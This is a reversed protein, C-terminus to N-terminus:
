LTSIKVRPDALALLLDSVLIGIVTLIGLLLISSAAMYTDQNLLAELLVPGLTPLNLVVSVIISGSFLAPLLYGVGSILPNLAVRVPYKIVLKWEPVGKARATVVYPKRLEDLLNNRLIRILGATGSTGLVLAPIWLHQFLNWVRGLSWDAGYYEPSFLGDLLVEFRDFVVWLLTIGLLFDPVALGLFGIFTVAYDGPSNHRVASYIGIPIAMVWTFTITTVALIVTNLLRDGMIEKVPRLTTMEIGLNGHMLDWAWNLYQVPLPKDLTYQSRLGAIISQHQDSGFAIGQSMSLRNGYRTAFDGPPVTIIAFSLVSIVFTTLIGLLVRRLLFGIM